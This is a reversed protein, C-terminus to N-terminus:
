LREHKKNEKCLESYIKSLAIPRFDNADVGVDYQNGLIKKSRSNHPGNHIHGHLHYTCKEQTIFKQNKPKDDGHWFKSPKELHSTDERWVGPLPCHSMSFSINGMWIVASYLVADFGMGHPGEDHNGVILIKKGRLRPIVSYKFYQNSGLCMDGLFFTTADEPVTANFNRILTNIMHVVDTFPRNCFELVNKHGEHWDSTLFIPLKM